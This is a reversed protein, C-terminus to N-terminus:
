GKLLALKNGKCFWGLTFWPVCFWISAIDLSMYESEAFCDYLVFLKTDRYIYMYMYTYKTFTM